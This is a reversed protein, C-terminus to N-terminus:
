ESKTKNCEPCSYGMTPNGLFRWGLNRAASIAAQQNDEWPGFTGCHSCFVYHQYNNM